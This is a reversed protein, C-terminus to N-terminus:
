PFIKELISDADVEPIDGYQRVFGNDNKDYTIVQNNNPFVMGLEGVAVNYIEELDLASSLSTKMANNTDEIKTLQKELNVIDKDLQTIGSHVQLYDVCVWLTSVMAALLVIMSVFDIGRSVGPMRKQKRVPEITPVDSIREYEWREREPVVSLKRATNGSIYATNNMGYQRKYNNRGADM